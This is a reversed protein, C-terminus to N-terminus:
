KEELLRKFKERALSMLQDVEEQSRRFNEISFAYVTVEKIGLLLCWQLVETL